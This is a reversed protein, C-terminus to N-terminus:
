NKKDDRKDEKEISKDDDRDKSQEKSDMDNKEDGSENDDDDPHRAHRGKHLAPHHKGDTHEEREIEISEAVLRKHKDVHLRVRVKTNPLLMKRDGNHIRTGAKLDVEIHNMGIQHEGRRQTIYGELILRRYRGAFPLRATKKISKAVLVGHRLVGRIDIHDGQRLRRSQLTDRRIRQQYVMLYRRGVATVPGHLYIARSGRQQRGIYSAILIGQQNRLGSVNLYSGPQVAKLDLKLHAPIKVTQGLIQLQRGHRDIRSVPGRVAYQIHIQRAAVTGKNATVGVAVVQGIALQRTTGPRGNILLPTHRGYQIRIGNVCISGFATITGIVGTGGIGSGDSEDNAATKGTGGIDATKGTGGIDATKGTGGIDSVCPAAAFVPAIGPVASSFLLLLIQLLRKHVNM